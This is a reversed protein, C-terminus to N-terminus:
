RKTTIVETEKLRLWALLYNLATAGYTLFFLIIYFHTRFVKPDSITYSATLKSAVWVIFIVYFAFLATFVGFTKVYSLKPWIVAGLVFFSQVALYFGFCLILGQLLSTNEPMMSKMIGTYIVSYIPTIYKFEPFRMATLACRVGDTIMVTVTYVIFFLVVYIILRSIFKEIALAPRMLLRIRGEKSKLEDFMTSACLCGYIFLFIIYLPAMDEAGPDKVTTPNLYTYNNTYAQCVALLLLIGGMMAYQLLLTRRRETLELKVLSFIRTCSLSNISKINSM